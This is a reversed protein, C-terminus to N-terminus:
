GVVEWTNTGTNSIRNTKKLYNLTSRVRKRTKPNDSGHLVRAAQGYDLKGYKRIWSLLIETKADPSMAVASGADDEEEPEQYDASIVGSGHSMAEIEDDIAAIQRDIEAVAEERERVLEQRRTVM